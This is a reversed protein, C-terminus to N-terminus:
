FRRRESRAQHARLMLDEAIANKAFPNLTFPKLPSFVIESGFTGADVLRLTIRPPNTMTTVSVNMINSIPVREERGENKVLLTDGCDYVEDVLDWILGKMIVWGILAMFLPGLLAGLPAKGFVMGVSVLTLVGYWSLPFIKKLIFTNGSSIKKVIARGQARSDRNYVSASSHFNAPLLESAFAREVLERSPPNAGLERM